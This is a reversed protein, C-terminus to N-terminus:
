TKEEMAKLAAVALDTNEPWNETSGCDQFMIAKAVKEIQVPCTHDPRPATREAHLARAMAELPEHLMKDLVAFRRDKGDWIRFTSGNGKTQVEYGAGIPIYYRDMDANYDIPKVPEPRPALLQAPTYVAIIDFASPNRYFGFVGGQSIPYSYIGISVWDVSNDHRKILGIEGNRLLAYCGEVPAVTPAADRAAQTTYDTM